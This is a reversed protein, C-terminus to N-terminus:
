ILACSVLAYSLYLVLKISCLLMHQSLVYFVFILQFFM